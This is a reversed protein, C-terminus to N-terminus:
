ECYKVGPDAPCNLAKRIEPQALHIRGIRLEDESHNDLLPDVINIADILRKENYKNEFYDPCKEAIAFQKLKLTDSGPNKCIDGFGLIVELIAQQAQPRPLLKIKQAIVESAMKDAFAERLQGRAQTDEDDRSNNCGENFEFYKDQNKDLYNLYNAKVNNPSNQGLRTLEELAKQTKIKIDQKNVIKAGVSLPDQLCSLTQIFPNDQYPIQNQIQNEVKLWGPNDLQTVIYNGKVPQMNIDNEFPAENIEERDKNKYLKGSYSCSDFSHSMEHAITEILSMKPLELWQPCIFFSHTKETYYANPSDCDKKLQDTLRPPTFKITKVREIIREIKDVNTEKKKKELYKIMEQQTEQFVNYVEQTKKNFVARN